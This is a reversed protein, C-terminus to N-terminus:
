YHRWQSKKTFYSLFLVEAM